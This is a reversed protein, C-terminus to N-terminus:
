SFFQELARIIIKRSNRAVVNVVLKVLWNLLVSMGTLRKLEYKGLNIVQCSSESNKTSIKMKVACNDVSIMAHGKIWFFLIKKAYQVNIAVNRVAVEITMLIGGDEYDLTCDGHRYLSSLGTVRGKHIEFNKEEVDPIKFPEFERRLKKLAKDVYKNANGISVDNKFIYDIFFKLLLRLPLGLRFITIFFWVSRM